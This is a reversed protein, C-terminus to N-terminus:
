IMMRKLRKLIWKKKNKKIHENKSKLYKIHRERKNLIEGYSNSYSGSVYMWEEKDSIREELYFSCGIEIPERIIRVQNKYNTFESYSIYIKHIMTGIYILIGLLSILIIYFMISGIIAAFIM